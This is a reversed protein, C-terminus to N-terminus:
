SEGQLLRDIRASKESSHDSRFRLSPVRFAKVTNSIAARISPERKKLYKVAEDTGQLASVSVIAESLDPALSVGTISVVSAADPPIARAHEAIVKRIISAIALTRHQM